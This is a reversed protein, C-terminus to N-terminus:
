EILRDARVLLSRPIEIGFARATKRNVVLEFRAAQEIPLEAPMAGRFIKDVYSAARYYLPGSLVGYSILGGDDTWRSSPYIAHLGHQAALDIILRRNQGNQANSVVVMANIGRGQAAALANRYEDPRKAELSIVKVGLAAASKGMAALQLRALRDGANLLGIRTVEPFMEVLMQMSKAHVQTQINSTGTVNGGPRALSKAFGAGVPDSALAIVIPISGGAKKAAHAAPTTPAFIVEPKTRVLETALAPLRDARGNAYRREIVINKGEIYGLDKLARYFPGESRRVADASALQLVALRHIRAMSQSMASQIPSAALFAALSIVGVFTSKM